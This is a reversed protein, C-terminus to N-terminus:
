RSGDLSGISGEFRGMDGQDAVLLRTAAAQHCYLQAPIDARDTGSDVGADRCCRADALDEGMVDDGARMAVGLSDDVDHIAAWLLRCAHRSRRRSRLRSGYGLRLWSWSRDRPRLRGKRGRHRIQTSEYLRGWLLHDSREGYGIIHAVQAAVRRTWAALTLRV